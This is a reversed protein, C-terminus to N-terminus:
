RLRLMKKDHEYFDSELLDILCSSEDKTLIESEKFALLFAGFANKQSVPKDFINNERWFDVVEKERSVFDLSSDVKKYM